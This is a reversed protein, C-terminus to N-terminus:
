DMGRGMRTRTGTGSNNGNANRNRNRRAATGGNGNRNKVGSATFKGTGWEREREGESVTPVPFTVIMNDALRKSGRCSFVSSADAALLRSRSGTEGDHPVHRPVYDYTQWLGHDTEKGGVRIIRLFLVQQLVTPRHTAVVRRGGCTRVLWLSSEKMLGQHRLAKWWRTNFGGGGGIVGGRKTSHRTEPNESPSFRAAGRAARTRTIRHRDM